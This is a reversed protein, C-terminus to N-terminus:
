DGRVRGYGRGPVFFLKFLVRQRNLFPASLNAFLFEGLADHFGQKAFFQLMFLGHESLFLVVAADASEFSRNVFRLTIVARFDVADHERACTM